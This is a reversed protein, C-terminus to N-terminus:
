DEQCAQRLEGIKARLRDATSVDLECGHAAIALRNEGKLCALSEFYRQILSNRDPKRQADLEPFVRPDQDVLRVLTDNAKNQISKGTEWRTYTKEGVGLLQAMAEQSLGTRERVQKIEIPTLLGRRKRAVDDLAQDLAHPILTEGCQSCEQWAANEIVITGGPINAPPEFEFRGSREELATAGCIPCETAM